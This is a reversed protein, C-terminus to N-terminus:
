IPVVINEKIKRIFATIAFCDELDQGICLWYRITEEHSSYDQILIRKIVEGYVDEQLNMTCFDDYAVLIIRMLTAKENLNLNEKQYYEIYSQLQVMQAVEIEWDQTFRTAGKLKLDKTLKHITEESPYKIERNM